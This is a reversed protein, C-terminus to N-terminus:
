AAVATVNLLLLPASGMVPIQATVLWQLIDM